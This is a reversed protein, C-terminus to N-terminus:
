NQRGQLAFSIAENRCCACLAENQHAREQKPEFSDPDPPDDLMRGPKRRARRYAAQRTPESPVGEWDEM